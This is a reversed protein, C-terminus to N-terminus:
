KTEAPAGSKEAAKKHGHHKKMHKAPSATEAKPAEVTSAASAAPATKAEGKTETAAFSAIAFGSILAAVAIKKLM